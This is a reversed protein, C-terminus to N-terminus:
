LRQGAGLKQSPTGGTTPVSRPLTNKRADVHPGAQEREEGAKRGKSGPCAGELHYQFSTGTLPRRAGAAM